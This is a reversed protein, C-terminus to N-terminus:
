LKKSRFDKEKQLDAQPAEGEAELAACDCEAMGLDVMRIKNKAKNM